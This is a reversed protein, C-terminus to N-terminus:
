GVDRGGVARLDGVCSTRGATALDPGPDPPPLHAAGAALVDLDTAAEPRWLVADRDVVLRGDGGCAPAASTEGAPRVSRSLSSRSPARGTSPSTREAAGGDRRVP